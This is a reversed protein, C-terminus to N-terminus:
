RPRQPSFTNQAPDVEGKGLFRADVKAFELDLQQRTAPDTVVRCIVDLIQQLVVRFQGLLYEVSQQEDRDINSLKRLLPICRWNKKDRAAEALTEMCLVPTDTRNARLRQKFEDDQDAAKRIARDSVGIRDAVETMSLGLSVLHLVKLKVENTLIKRPKFFQPNSEVSSQAGASHNAPSPTPQQSM